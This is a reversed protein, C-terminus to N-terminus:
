MGIVDFLRGRLDEDALLASTMRRRAPADCADLLRSLLLLAQDPDAAAGLSELIPADSEVAQTFPLFADVALIRQARDLDVFGYRALAADSTM